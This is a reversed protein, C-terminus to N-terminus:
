VASQVKVVRASKQRLKEFRVWNDEGLRVAFVEIRLVGSADEYLIELEGECPTEVPEFLLDLDVVREVPITGHERFSKFPIDGTFETTVKYAINRNNQIKTAINVREGLGMRSVSAVEFDATVAREASQLQIELAQGASHIQQVAADAMRRQQEVSHRLEEAQLRLADTSLKLERGQQLFGLVLWLFAVPGFAGALFDGFENLKLDLFRQFDFLVKLVIAALYIGTGWAGWVELRRKM